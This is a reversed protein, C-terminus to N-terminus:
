CGRGTINQYAVFFLSKTIVDCNFNYALHHFWSLLHLVLIYSRLILVLVLPGLCQMGFGCIAFINGRSTKLGLCYGEPKLVFVLYNEYSILKLFFKLLRM